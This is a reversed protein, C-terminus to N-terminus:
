FAVTYALGGGIRSFNFLGLTASLPGAHYRGGLNFRGNVLEAMGALNPQFFLEAGAFVRENYVGGGFGLHGKLAFDQEVEARTFYKSAVVYWSARRAFDSFADVVGVSLAPINDTERLFNFKANALLDTGRRGGSRRTSLVTLGVEFQDGLGVVAGGGYFGSTAHFYGTGERNFQTYASPALLLGTAGLFNPVRGETVPREVGILQASAPAAAYLTLAVLGILAKRM